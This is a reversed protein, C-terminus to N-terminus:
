ATRAKLVIANRSRNTSAVRRERLGSKSIARCGPSMSWSKSGQRQSGRVLKLSARFADQAFPHPELECMTSKSVYHSPREKDIVSGAYPRNTGCAQPDVALSASGTSLGPLAHSGLSSAGAQRLVLGHWLRAMRWLSFPGVVTVRPCDGAGGGPGGDPCTGPDPARGFKWAPLAAAIHLLWASRLGVRQGHGHSTRAHPWTSMVGDSFSATNRAWM